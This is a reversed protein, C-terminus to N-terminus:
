SFTISRDGWFYDFYTSAPFRDNPLHYPNGDTKQHVLEKLERRTGVFVHNHGLIIQGFTPDVLTDIGGIEQLYWHIPSPSQASSVFETQLGATHLGKQLQLSFKVCNKKLIKDTLAPDVKQPDTSLMFDFDNVRFKQQSLVGETIERIRRVHASESEQGRFRETM